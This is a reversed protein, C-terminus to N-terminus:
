TYHLEDKISNHAVHLDLLKDQNPGEAALSKSLSKDESFPASNEKQAQKIGHKTFTLQTYLLCKSLQEWAAKKEPAKKASKPHIDGSVM